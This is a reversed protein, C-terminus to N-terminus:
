PTAARYGPNLFRPQDVLRDPPQDVPHDAVQDGLRLRAERCLPTFDASSIRASPVRNDGEGGLHAVVIPREFGEEVFPHVAM